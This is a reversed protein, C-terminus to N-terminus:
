KIGFTQLFRNLETVGRDVVERLLHLDAGVLPSILSTGLLSDIGAENREVIAMAASRVDDYRAHDSDDASLDHYVYDTRDPVKWALFAARRILCPVCRGCHRYGYIKFRGCSTTTHAHCKLDGQRLCEHLM